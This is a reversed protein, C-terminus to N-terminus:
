VFVDKAWQRFTEKTMKGKESNFYALSLDAAHKAAPLRTRTGAAVLCPPMLISGDANAAFVMNFGVPLVPRRKTSRAGRPAMIKTVARSEGVGTEDMNWIRRPPTNEINVAKLRRVFSDRAEDDLAGTRHGGYKEGMVLSIGHRKKFRTAWAGGCKKKAEAASCISETVLLRRALRQVPATGM